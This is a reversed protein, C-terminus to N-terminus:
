QAVIVSKKNDWKELSVVMCLAILLSPYIIPELTGAALISRNRFISPPFILPEQWTGWGNIWVAFLKRSIYEWFLNLWAESRINIFYKWFLIITSQRSNHYEQSFYLICDQLHLWEATLMPFLMNGFLILFWYYLLNM